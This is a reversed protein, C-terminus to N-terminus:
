THHSTFVGFIVNDWCYNLYRNSYNLRAEIHEKKLIPKYVIVSFYSNPMIVRKIIITFLILTKHLM